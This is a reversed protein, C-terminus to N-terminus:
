CLSLQVPFKAHKGNLWSNRFNRVPLPIKKPFNVLFGSITSNRFPSGNLRFKGPIGPPFVHVFPISTGPKGTRNTVTFKRFNLGSTKPQHFRGKDNVNKYNLCIPWNVEPLIGNYTAPLALKTAFEERYTHSTQQSFLTGAYVCNLGLKSLTRGRM